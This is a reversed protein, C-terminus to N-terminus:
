QLDSGRFADEVTSSGDPESMAWRATTVKKLLCAEVEASAVESWVVEVNSTSAEGHAITLRYSFRFEAASGMPKAALKTCPRLQEQLQAHVEAMKAQVAPANIQPEVPPLERRNPDGARAPPASGPPMAPLSPETTHSRTSAGTQPAREPRDPAGDSRQWLWIGVAIAAGLVAFLLSRRVNLDYREGHQNSRKAAAAKCWGPVTRYM